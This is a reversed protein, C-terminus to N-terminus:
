NKLNFKILLNTSIKTPAGNVIYPKFRYRKGIESAARDLRPFSSSQLLAVDEVEGNTGIILRVVVTGQEGARKSFSPYYPDADPQFLVELKGIDTQIPTGALGPAASPPATNSDSPKTESPKVAEQPPPPPPSPKSVAGKPDQIKPPEPKPEPKVVPKPELKPQEPKPAPPKPAQPPVPTKPENPNILNAMVREDNNSDPTNVMSNHFHFLFLAHLFLVILIIIRDQRSFPLHFHFGATQNM